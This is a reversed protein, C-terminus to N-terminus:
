RYIKKLTMYYRNIMSWHYGTAYKIESSSISPKKEILEEMKNKAIESFKSMKRLGASGKCIPIFEFHNGKFKIVDYIFTNDTTIRYQVVLVDSLINGDEEYLKISISRNKRTNVRSKEM